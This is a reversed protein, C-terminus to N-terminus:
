VEPQQPNEAKHHIMAADAATMGVTSAEAQADGGFTRAVATTRV